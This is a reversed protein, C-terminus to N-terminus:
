RERRNQLAHQICALVRRHELAARVAAQRAISITHDQHRNTDGLRWAVYDQATRKLASMPLDGVM